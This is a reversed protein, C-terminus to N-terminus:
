ANRKACWCSFLSRRPPKPHARLYCWRLFVLYSILLATPTQWWTVWFGRPPQAQAWNRLEEVVNGDPKATFYISGDAAQSLIENKSSGPEYSDKLAQPIIVQNESYRSAPPIATDNVLEAVAWCVRYLTRSPHFDRFFSYTRMYDRDAAFPALAVFDHNVLNMRKLELYPNICYLSTLNYPIVSDYYVDGPQMDQATHLLKLRKALYTIQQDRTLFAQLVWWVPLSPLSVNDASDKRTLQAVLAKARDQYSYGDFLPKSLHQALRLTAADDEDDCFKEVMEQNYINGFYDRAASDIWRDDDASSYCGDLIRRCSDLDNRQWCWIAVTIEPLSIFSPEFQASLMGRRSLEARKARAKQWNDESSNASAQLATLEARRAILDNAADQPSGPKFQSYQKSFSNKQAFWTLLMVSSTSDSLLWGQMPLSYVQGEQWVAKGPVTALLREANIKLFEAMCPPLPATRNYQLAHPEGLQIAAADAAERVAPRYSQGLAIVSAKYQVLHRAAAEHLAMILVQQSPHQEQLLTGIAADAEASHIHSLAQAGSAINDEVMEHGILWLASPLAATSSGTSKGFADALQGRYNRAPNDSGGGWFPLSRWSARGNTEDAWSQAFLALIYDGANKSKAADPNELDTLEAPAQFTAYPGKAYIAALDDFARKGEPSDVAPKVADAQAPLWCMLALLIIGIHTKM